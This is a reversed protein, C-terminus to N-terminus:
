GIEAQNQRDWVSRCFMLLQKYRWSDYKAVASGQLTPFTKEMLERNALFPFKEKDNVILSGALFYAIMLKSCTLKGKNGHRKVLDHPLASLAQLTELCRPLMETALPCSLQNQWGRDLRFADITSVQIINTAVSVRAVESFLMDEENSSVSRVVAPCAEVVKKFLVDCPNDPDQSRALYYRSLALALREGNFRNLHFFYSNKSERPKDPEVTKEAKRLLVEAQDLDEGIDAVIRQSVAALFYAERANIEKSRVGDREVFPIPPIPFRIREVIAAAKQAHHLAVSWKDASAFAAGLIIYRLYSLQRDDGNGDQDVLVCDYEIERFDKEFDAFTGYDAKSLRNFILQAKSFTSFHLDPPNRAGLLHARSLPAIGTDSLNTTLRDRAQDVKEQVLFLLENWNYTRDSKELVTKLISQRLEDTGDFDDFNSRLTGNKSVEVWDKLTRTIRDLGPVLDSHDQPYLAIHETLEPPFSTSAAGKALLGNFFDSIAEVNEPDTLAEEVYAWLHRVHLQSFRQALEPPSGMLFDRLAPEDTSTMRPSLGGYTARVLNEDGTVLVVRFRSQSNELRM